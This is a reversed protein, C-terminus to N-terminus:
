ISAFGRAAVGNGHLLGAPDADSRHVDHRCVQPPPCDDNNMCFGIPTPTPTPDVCSRRLGRAECDENNPLLTRRRLQRSRRVHPSAGAAAATRAATASHDPTNTPTPTPTPVDQSACLTPRVATAVYADFDNNVDLPLLVAASTFGIWRGNASMHVPVDPAGGTDDKDALATVRVEPHPSVSRDVVFVDMVLNGDEAVLNRAGSAFAVFRGDASLSPGSSLGDRAENGFSDESVRTTVGTGRDRM